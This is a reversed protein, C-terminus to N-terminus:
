VVGSRRSQPAPYRVYCGFGPLHQISTSRAPLAPSPRAKLRVPRWGTSRMGPQYRSGGTETGVAVKCRPGPRPGAAKEGVGSHSDEGGDCRLAMGVGDRAAEAEVAVGDVRRDIVGLRLRGKREPSHPVDTGVTKGRRGSRRLNAMGQRKLALVDMFEEPTLM